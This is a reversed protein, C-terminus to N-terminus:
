GWGKFKGPGFMKNKIKVVVEDLHILTKQFFFKDQFNLNSIFTPTVLNTFDIPIRHKLWDIVPLWYHTKLDNWNYNMDLVRTCNSEYMTTGAFPYKEPTAPEASPTGEQLGAWFMIRLPFDNKIGFAESTGQADISPMARGFKRIDIAYRMLMPPLNCEVPDEGGDVVVNAINDSTTVWMYTGPDDDEEGEFFKYELWANIATIFYVDGVSPDTPLDSYSDITDEVLPPVIFNNELLNDPGEFNM